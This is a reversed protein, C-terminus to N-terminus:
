QVTTTDVPTTVSASDSVSSATDVSMTSEEKPIPRMSELDPFYAIMADSIQQIESTDLKKDELWKTIPQMALMFNSYRERNLSDSKVRVAFSDIFANFRATDVIEPNRAVEGKLGQSSYTAAWKALDEQYIYCTVGTV